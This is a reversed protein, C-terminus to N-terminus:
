QLGPRNEGDPHYAVRLFESNLTQALRRVGDVIGGPQEGIVQAVRDDDLAAAVMWAIYLGESRANRESEFKALGSDTLGYDVVGYPTVVRHRITGGGARKGRFRSTAEMMFHVDNPSPMSFVLDSIWRRDVTGGRGAPARRPCDASRSCEFYRLPHFHYIHIEANEALLRELYEMDVRLSASDGGSREERGIEHWQCKRSGQARPLFAWMEELAARRLIQAIRRIGQRECVGNVVYRRANDANARLEPAYLVKRAPEAGQGAASGTLLLALTAAFAPGARAINGLAARM